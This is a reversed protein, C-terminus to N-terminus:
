KNKVPVLKRGCNPCKETNEKGKEVLKGFYHEPKCFGCKMAIM